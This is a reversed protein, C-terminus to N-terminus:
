RELLAKLSDLGRDLDPGLMKEYPFVAGMVRSLATKPFSMQWTVHTGTATPILTFTSLSTSRFPKLFRVDVEVVDVTATTITMTGAGAKRNGQWADNSGVGSAPGSYTRQVDPDLREFPSWDVWRHFDDLAALVLSPPAAIDRERVLRVMDTM